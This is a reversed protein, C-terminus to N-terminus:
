SAVAWVTAVGHGLVLAMAGLAIVVVFAFVGTVAGDLVTARWGMAVALVVILIVAFLLTMARM